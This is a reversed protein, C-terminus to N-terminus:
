TKSGAASSPRRRKQIPLLISNVDTQLAAAIAEVSSLQPDNTAHIVQQWRVRATAGKGFGAREGATEQSIGLDKRLLEIADRNLPM